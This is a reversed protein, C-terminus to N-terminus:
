AIDESKDKKKDISGTLKIQRSGREHKTGDVNLPGTKGDIGVILTNVPSKQRRLNTIAMAIPATVEREICRALPRAGNAEDTGIDALFDLLNQDYKLQYHQVAMRSALLQLDHNAIQRIIQRDLVNFVVKHDIRNVFEPRFVDTLAMQVEQRFALMKRKRQTETDTTTIRDYTQKDSILDAGLNTTMILICNRFNAMRGRQDRLEGDDLVSLLLDHVQNNAKEIEDFLLVSYPHHKISSTLLRQFKSLTNAEQFEAMDFRIMNSLSDFMALTLAKALATKGVGTTGLFLFSALPKNPVQLGVKAIEISDVVESIAQDQGMVSQKLKRGLGILRRDDNTLISTVPIGTMRQLVRAIDQIEVIPRQKVRCIAGAEDMLDIAKDPLYRDPLYRISLSVCSKIAQDTYTVGHYKEYISKIGSLIRIASAKSPEDVRVPQFRRELAPDRQIFKDFEDSTTAGILQIEGRAMTPKLVDGLDMAGNTDDGGMITHVEDIFLIVTKHSAKLENIIGLFKTVRNTQGLSAVQLVRIVKNNLAQGAQKLAIRRALGEVIATKGVGADGLLVPNNKNRRNLNIIVEQIEAERDIVRYDDPNKLAAATLNTTYKELYSDTTEVTM